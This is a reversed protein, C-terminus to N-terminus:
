TVGYFELGLRGNLQLTDDKPPSNAVITPGSPSKDGDNEDSSSLVDPSSAGNTEEASADVGSEGGRGADVGSQDERTPTEDDTTTGLASAATAYELDDSSSVVGIPLIVGPSAAGSPPPTMVSSEDTSSPATAAPLSPPPPTAIADNIDGDNNPVTVNADVNEDCSTPSAPLPPSIAEAM